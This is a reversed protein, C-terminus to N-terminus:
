KRDKVLTDCTGCRRFGDEEINISRDNGYTPGVVYWKGCLSKHKEGGRPKNLIGVQPAFAHIVRRDPLIPNFVARVCVRFMATEQNSVSM